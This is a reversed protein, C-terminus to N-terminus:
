KRRKREVPVNERRSNGNNTIWSRFKFLRFQFHPKFKTRFSVSMLVYRNQATHVGSDTGVANTGWDVTALNCAIQNPATNFPRGNAPTPAPTIMQDLSQNLQEGPIIETYLRDM